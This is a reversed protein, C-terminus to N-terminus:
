LRATQITSVLNEDNLVVYYKNTDEIDLVAIRDSADTVIRFTTEEQNLDSIDFSGGPRIDKTTSVVNGNLDYVVLDVDAPSENIFRAAFSTNFESADEYAGDSSCNFTFASISILLIYAIKKM